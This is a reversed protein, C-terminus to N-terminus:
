ALQGAEVEAAQKEYLRALSQLASARERDTVMFSLARSQRALSRLKQPSGDMGAVARM